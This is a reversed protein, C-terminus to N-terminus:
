RQTPPRLDRPSAMARRRTVPHDRVMLSPGKPYRARKPQYDSQWIVRPIRSIRHAEWGTLYLAERKTYQKAWAQMQSWTDAEAGHSPKSRRRARRRRIVPATIGRHIKSVTIASADPLLLVGPCGDLLGGGVVPFFVGSLNVRLVVPTLSASPAPGPTPM